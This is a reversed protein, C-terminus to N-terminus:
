ISARLSDRKNTKFRDHCEVIIVSTINFFIFYSPDGCNCEMIQENILVDGNIMLCFVFFIINVFFVKSLYVCLDSM